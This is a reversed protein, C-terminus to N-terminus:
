KTRYNLGGAVDVLPGDQVEVPNAQHHGPVEQRPLLARPCTKAEPRLGTDRFCSQPMPCKALLLRLGQELVLQLLSQLLHPPAAGGGGRHQGLPRFAAVSLSAGKRVGRTPRRVTGNRLSEFASTSEGVM